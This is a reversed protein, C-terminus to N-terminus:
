ETKKGSDGGKGDPEVTSIEMQWADVGPASPINVTLMEFHANLFILAPKLGGDVILAGDSFYRYSDAHTGDGPDSVFSLIQGRHVAAERTDVAPLADTLPAM